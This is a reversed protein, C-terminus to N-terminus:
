VEDQPPRSAATEFSPGCYRNTIGSVLLLITLRCTEFSCDGACRISSPYRPHIPFRVDQRAMTLQSWVQYRAAAVLTGRILLIHEPTYMHILIIEFRHGSSRQPSKVFLDAHRQGGFYDISFAFDFPAKTEDMACRPRACGAFRLHITSM